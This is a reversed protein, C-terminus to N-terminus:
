IRSTASFGVERRDDDIRLFGRERDFADGDSEHAVALAPLRKECALEPDGV